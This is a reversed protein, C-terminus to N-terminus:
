SELFNIIANATAQPQEYNHLHGTHPLFELQAQLKHATKVTHKQKVLHDQEGALILLEQHPSFDAVAYRTSFFAAKIVEKKRPSHDVGCRHTIKLIDRLTQRDRPVILYKTTIYDVIRSPLIASLPAVLRFPPATRTSIPSLLISKSNVLEPYISIAASVVISGMSHGILVPRHLNHTTIYDALYDAYHEPTYKKLTPAGGFPPIAPVYVQYGGQRLLNAVEELGIPSGRFGHVLILAPKKISKLTTPTEKPNLPM